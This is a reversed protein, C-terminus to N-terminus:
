RLAAVAAPDRLPDDAMALLRFAKARLGYWGV